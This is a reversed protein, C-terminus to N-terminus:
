TMASTRLPSPKRQNPMLRSHGRIRGAGRRSLTAAHHQGLRRGGSGTGGDPQQGLRQDVADGGALHDLARRRHHLLQDLVREIGTGAANGHREGAAPDVADLDGIVAGPHVRGIEGEGHLPVGGRLKGVLLEDADRCEAEAALRQGRDPRRPPEGDGCPPRVRRM